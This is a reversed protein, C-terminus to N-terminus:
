AFEKKVEPHALWYCVIAFCLGDWMYYSDIRSLLGLFVLLVVLVGCVYMVLKRAWSARQLFGWIVVVKFAFGIIVEVAQIQKHAGLLTSLAHLVVWCAGSAFIAMLLVRIAAGRWAARNVWVVIAAVGSSIMIATTAGDAMSYIEDADALRLLVLLTAVVAFTLLFFGLSRIPQLNVATM